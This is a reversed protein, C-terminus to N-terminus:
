TRRKRSPTKGISILSFAELYRGTFVLTAGGIGVAAFLALLPWTWLPRVAYLASLHFWIRSM